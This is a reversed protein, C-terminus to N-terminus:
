NRKSLEIAEEVPVKKDGNFAVVFIGEHGEKLLQKKIKDADAYTDCNGILYLNMDDVLRSNIKQLLYSNKLKSLESDSLAERYAGVQVMFVINGKSISNKGNNSNGNKSEMKRAKDLSIHEGDNYSIVYADKFGHKKATNVGQKAKAYTSYSGMMYRTGKGSVKDTYIPELNNLDENTKPNMFTGLQVLYVLGSTRQISNSALNNDIEKTKTKNSSIETKNEKVKKTENKKIRESNNVRKNTQTKEQPNTKTKTITSSVLKSGFGFANEQLQLAQLLMDNAGMKALYQESIFSMKNAKAIESQANEYYNESQAILSDTHTFKDWSKQGIKPLHAKYVLYRTNNVNLQINTASMLKNIAIQEKEIATTSLDERKDPDITREAAFNLSDIIIYAQDVERLLNNAYENKRSAEALLSLEEKTPKIKNLIEKIQLQYLNDDEDPNYLEDYAPFLISDNKVINGKKNTVINLEVPEKSIAVYDTAKVTRDNMYLAFANEQLALAELTLDNAEFLNNIRQVPEGSANRAKDRAKDMNEKALTELNGAMEENDTPEGTRAKGLVTIYIRSKIDTGKKFLDISKNGTKINKEELKQAKKESRKKNKAVTTAAAAKNYKDIDRLNMKYELLYKRADDMYSNAKKLQKRDDKSFYHEFYPKKSLDIGKVRPENQSIQQSLLQVPQSNILILILFGSILFNLKNM